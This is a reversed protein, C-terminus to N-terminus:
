FQKLHESFTTIRSTRYVLANRTNRTCLVTRANFCGLGHVSILMYIHLQM